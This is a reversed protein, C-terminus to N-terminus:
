EISYLSSSGQATDLDEKSFAIKGVKGDAEYIAQIMAYPAFSPDNQWVYVTRNQVGPNTMPTSTPKDFGTIAWADSEEQPKESFSYGIYIPKNTAVEYDVQINARGYDFGTIRVKKSPTLSGAEYSANYKTKLDEETLNAIELAPLIEDSGVSVSQATENNSNKSQTTDTSKSALNSLVASLLFLALIGTIIPHRRFWNRLDARCHPCRTAGEKIDEKCKPCQKM